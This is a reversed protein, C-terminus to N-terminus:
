SLLQAQKDSLSQYWFIGFLANQYGWFHINLIEKPMNLAKSCRNFCRIASCSLIFGWVRLASCQCQVEREINLLQANIIAMQREYDGSHEISRNPVLLGLHRAWLAADKEQNVRCHQKMSGNMVASASHGQVCSTLLHLLASRLARCNELLALLCQSYVNCLWAKLVGLELGSCPTLCCLKRWDAGSTIFALPSSYETIIRRVWKAALYTLRQSWLSILQKTTFFLISPKIVRVHYNGSTRMSVNGTAM